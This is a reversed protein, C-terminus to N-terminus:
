ATKALCQFTKIMLSSLLTGYLYYSILLLELVLGAHFELNQFEEIVIIFEILMVNDSDFVIANESLMQNYREFQEGYVQVFEYFVVIEFSDRM